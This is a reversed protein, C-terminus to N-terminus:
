KPSVGGGNFVRIYNSPANRYSNGKKNKASWRPDGYRTEIEIQKQLDNNMVAIEYEKKIDKPIDKQKDFDKKSMRFVQKETNKNKKKEKRKKKTERIFEQNNKRIEAVSQEPDRLQLGSPRLLSNDIQILFRYDAKLVESNTLEVQCTKKEKSKDCISILSKESSINKILICYMNEWLVYNRAAKSNVSDTDTSILFVEGKQFIVKKLEMMRTEKISEEM